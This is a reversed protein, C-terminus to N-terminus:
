IWAWYTLNFASTVTGGGNPAWMQMQFGLTNAATPYAASIFVGSIMDAAPMVMVKHSTTLGTVTVTVDLTTTNKAITQSGVNVQGSIFSSAYSTGNVGLSSAVGVVNGHLTANVNAATVNGTVTVNGGVSENNTVTVNGASVNGTTVFGIPSTVGYAPDITATLIQSTTVTGNATTHFAIYGGQATSSINDGATFTMRAPGITPWGSSGYPTGGYRVIDQGALVQTPNAITGNYRRGAIVTYNGGSDFYARGSTADGDPGTTHLMVGSNQPPQSLGMANGTIEIAGQNNSNM